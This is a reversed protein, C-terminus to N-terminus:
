NPNLIGWALFINGEGDWWGSKVDVIRGGPLADSGLHVTATATRDDLVATEAATTLPKLGWETLVHPLLPPPPATRELAYMRRSVRQVYQALPIPKRLADWQRSHAIGQKFRSLSIADMGSAVM